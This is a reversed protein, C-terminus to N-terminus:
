DPFNERTPKVIKPFFLSFTSGEGYTSAVAIRVGQAEAAEKVFTLGLGSGKIDETEASCSRYFKDFIKDLDAAKIGYGQDAVDVRIVEAEEEVKLTVERDPPSYKMANEALNMICQKTLDRDVSVPAVDDPREVQLRIGKKEALPALILATETLLDSLVVSVKNIQQRGEEIRNIDLFTNVFKTLRLSEDHIITAFRHMPGELNETLIESFGQISTMPAKLEHSVISVIQGKLIEVEKLKTIDSLIFLSYEKEGVPLHLIDVKFYRKDPKMLCVTMSARELWQLLTADGDGKEMVYPALGEIFRDRSDLSIGNAGSFHHVDRNAIALSGEPDFVAVGFIDSLLIRDSLEKEFILQNTLDHLLFAQSQIGKPTLVGSIGKKVLGPKGQAEANRLHPRIADYTIGLSVAADNLKFIYALAFLTLFTVYTGTPACWIHWLAFSLFSFISFLLLAAILLLAGRGETTRFFHYYLFLGLLLSIIWRMPFPVVRIADGLLLNSLITAQIEVGPTGLRAASYPTTASDVLGMATMGVLVIKGQFYAPSYKGDIVDGLSIRTFTGPGGYHNIRMLDSQIIAADDQQDPIPKGRPFLTKGAMEYLVSSFSPLLSGQFYLTHYVERVIGDIGREIHVHGTRVPPLTRSPYEIFMKEEIVAPLVVRAYQHMERALMDDDAPESMMIDFAVVQAAAMKGLLSAYYGRKLPWRGLKALTQEDIAVIVIDAPPKEPGRIRFSLDYFYHNMGALIGIYELSFLILLCFLPLTIRKLTILPFLRKFMM